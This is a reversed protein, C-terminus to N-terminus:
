PPPTASPTVAVVDLKTGCERYWITLTHTGASLNFTQAGTKWHWLSDQVFNMELTAVSGDIGYWVSDDSTDVALGKVHVHHVGANTISVLYSMSAACNDLNADNACSAGTGPGCLMYSTGSFGNFSTAPDWSRLSGQNVNSKKSTFDEAEIINSAPGGDIMADNADDIASADVLKGDITDADEHTDGSSPTFNCASLLGLVVLRRM